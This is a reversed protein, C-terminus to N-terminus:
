SAVFAVTLLHLKWGSLYDIGSEVEQASAAEEVLKEELSMSPTAPLVRIVDFSEPGTSELTHKM